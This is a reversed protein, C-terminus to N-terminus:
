QQNTSLLVCPSKKSNNFGCHKDFLLIDFYANQILIQVLDRSFIINSNLICIIYKWSLKPNPAYWCLGPKHFPIYLKCHQSVTISCIWRADEIRRQHRWQYEKWTTKISRFIIHKNLTMTAILTYWWLFLLCLWKSWGPM